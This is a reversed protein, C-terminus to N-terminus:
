TKSTWGPLFGGTTNNPPVTCGDKLVKTWKWKTGGMRLFKTRHSPCRVYARVCSITDAPAAHFPAGLETRKSLSLGTWSPCTDAERCVDIM